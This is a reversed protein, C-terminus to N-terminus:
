PPFFMASAVDKRSPDADAHAFIGGSDDDDNGSSELVAATAAAIVDDGGGGFCYAMPDHFAVGEEEEEEVSGDNFLLLLLSICSTRRLGITAPFQFHLGAVRESAIVNNRNNDAM